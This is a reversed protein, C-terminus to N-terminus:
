DDVANKFDDKADPFAFVRNSEDYVRKLWQALLKEREPTMQMEDPLEDVAKQVAAHLAQALGELRGEAWAREIDPDSYVTRALKPNADKHGLFKAVKTYMKDLRKQLEVHSEGKQPPKMTAILALSRISAHYRRIDHPHMKSGTV